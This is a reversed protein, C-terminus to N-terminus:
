LGAFSHSLEPLIIIEQWKTTMNIRGEVKSDQAVM